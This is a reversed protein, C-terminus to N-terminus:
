ISPVPTITSLQILQGSGSDLASLASQTASIVVEALAAYPQTGPVTAAISAAIELESLIDSITINPSASFRLRRARARIRATVQPTVQMGSQLSNEFSVISVTLNSIALAAATQNSTATRFLAYSNYALSYSAAAQNFAATYQPYSTAVTSRLTLLAAHALTLSDYSAGDFTNIQNPHKAQPSCGTSLAIAAAVLAAVSLKLKLM